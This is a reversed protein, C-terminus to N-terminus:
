RAEFSRNSPSQSVFALFRLITPCAQRDQSDIGGELNLPMDDWKLDEVGAMKEATHAHKEMGQAGDIGEGFLESFTAAAEDSLEGANQAGLQQASNGNGLLSRGRRAGEENLRSVFPPKLDLPECFLVLSTLSLIATSSVSPASPAM